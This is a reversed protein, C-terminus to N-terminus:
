ELPQQEGFLVKLRQTRRVGDGTAYKNGHLPQGPPQAPPKDADPRCVDPELDESNADEREPTTYQAKAQRGRSPSRVALQM